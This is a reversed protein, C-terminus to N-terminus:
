RGLLRAANGGLVAEVVRDKLGIGRWEAIARAMPFVPWDTGHLVQESLVSNMFRYMVEWGSGPAGVYKPALGGFEMFVNPHKRGVAVMEATWPWGAHCAILVLEPFDCAVQDLQLPHDNKIPHSVSYNIGTHLAVMLGVEAAKAYVPYLRADDIALHFFSPQISVGILGQEAIEAVQGLARMIDLPAMSITGFGSFRAPDERVLKAVAQNMADAPDGYEYEAHVVTHEVGNAEMEAILDAFTKDINDSVGLVADYQSRYGAPPPAQPPRLEEPLRARFDIIANTM